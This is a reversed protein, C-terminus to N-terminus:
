SKVITKGFWSLRLCEPEPCAEVCRLCLTCEWATVEGQLKGQYVKRVDVPCSRQCAGCRTCKRGNKVISVLGTRNFVATLGGIPCLRCWFRRVTLGIFFLAFALLGLMTFVTTITDHWDTWCISDFSFFAAFIRSPCVRCFPEVLSPGADDLFPLGAIIALLLTLVLLCYKTAILGIRWANSIRVQAIGLSLRIKTLVDSLFGLPCVWGCWLRAGLLMLGVVLLLYPLVQEFPPLYSLLDSVFYLSCGKCLGKRQYICTTAPLHLNLVTDRREVWKLKIPGSSEQVTTQASLTLEAQIWRVAFGGYLLIVFFFIQLLLRVKSISRPKHLCM